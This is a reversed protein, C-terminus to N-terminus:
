IERKNKQNIINSQAELLPESVVETYLAEDLKALIVEIPEVLLKTRFGTSEIPWEDSVFQPLLQESLWKGIM